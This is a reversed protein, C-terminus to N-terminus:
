GQHEPEPFIKRLPIRPEVPSLDRPILPVTVNFETGENEVSSFTVNGKMLHVYKEVINLGLGTGAIDIANQGRFFRKFVHSQEELPIGIGSDKVNISLAEDDKSVNLDITANTPSYKIANSLLNSLVIRLMERDASIFDSHDPKYKLAIVQGDKKTVDLEHLLQSLLDNLSFMCNVAVVKGEELKSLSLFDNLHETLANVANTIRKVHTEKKEQLQSGSYKLLISASSLITTLPTRFEHSAATVFRSKLMNLTREKELNAILDEEVKKRGTINKIVVLAEDVQGDSSYLPVSAVSYFRDQIRLDFKTRAGAFVKELNNVCQAANEVPIGDVFPKGIVEGDKFGLAAFEEGNAFVFCLKRDLVGIVGDPFNRAMESYLKQSKRLADEVANRASVEAVLETNAKNVDSLATQLEQTRLRVQVGLERKQEAILSVKEALLREREKKFTADQVFLIVMPMEDGHYSTVSVEAPFDVGNENRATVDYALGKKRQKGITGSNTNLEFFNLNIVEPILQSIHREKLAEADYGFMEAAFPNALVIQGQVNLFLIGETSYQFLAELQEVLKEKKAITRRHKIFFFVAFWITIFTILRNLRISSFSMIEHSRLFYGAVILISTCIGLAIIHKESRCMWLTFLAILVYSVTGLMIGSFIELAFVSAMLLIGAVFSKNNILRSNMVKNKLNFGPFDPLNPM